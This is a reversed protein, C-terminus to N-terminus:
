HEVDMCDNNKKSGFGGDKKAMIEQCRQLINAMGLVEISDVM